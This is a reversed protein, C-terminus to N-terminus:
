KSDISEQIATASVAGLRLVEARDELLRIVTSARNSMEGGEVMFDPAEALDQFSTRASVAPDNGALNASTATLPKGVAAILRLVFPHNPMRVGHELGRRDPMVITLPGPWFEDAIRQLAPTLPIDVRELDALSHILVQLKKRPERQKIAYIRERGAANDIACILGYVTETPVIGVEGRLLRASLEALLREEQGDALEFRTM